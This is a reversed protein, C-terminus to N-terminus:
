YAPLFLIAVHIKRITFSNIQVCIIVPMHTVNSIYFINIMYINRGNIDHDLMKIM